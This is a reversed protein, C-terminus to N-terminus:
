TPFVTIILNLIAQSEETLLVPHYISSTTTDVEPEVGVGAGVTSLKVAFGVVMVSPSLVVKLQCVLLAVLTLMFSPLPLVTYLPEDTSPEVVTEGLM